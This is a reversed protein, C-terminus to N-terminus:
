SGISTWGKWECIRALYNALHPSLIQQGFFQCGFIQYPLIPCWGFLSKSDCTKHCLDAELSVVGTSSTNELLILNPLTSERSSALYPISSSM